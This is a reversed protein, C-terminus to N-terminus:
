ALSYDPGSAAPEGDSGLQTIQNHAIIAHVRDQKM